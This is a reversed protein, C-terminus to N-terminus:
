LRSHVKLVELLEDITLTEETAREEFAALDEQDERVSKILELSM